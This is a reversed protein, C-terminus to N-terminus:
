KLQETLFELAPSVAAKWAWVGETGETKKEFFRELIEWKNTQKPKKEKHECQSTTIHNNIAYDSCWKQGEHM